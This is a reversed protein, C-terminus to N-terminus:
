WLFVFFVLSLDSSATLFTLFTAWLTVTKLCLTRFFFFSFTVIEFKELPVLFTKGLDECPLKQPVQLIFAAFLRFGRFFVHKCLVVLFCLSDGRGRYWDKIALLYLGAARACLCAEM